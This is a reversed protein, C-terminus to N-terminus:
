ARTNALSPLLANFVIGANVQGDLKTNALADRQPAFRPVDNHETIINDTADGPNFFRVDCMMPQKNGNHNTM